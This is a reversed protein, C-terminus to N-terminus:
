REHSPLIYFFIVILFGRVWTPKMLGKARLNNKIDNTRISVVSVELSFFKDGARWYLEVKSFGSPRLHCSCLCHTSLCPTSLLSEPHKPLASCFSTLELGQGGWLVEMPFRRGEILSDECRLPEWDVGLSDSTLAM